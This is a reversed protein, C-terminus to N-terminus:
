TTDANVNYVELKPILNRFQSFLSQLSLQYEIILLKQM